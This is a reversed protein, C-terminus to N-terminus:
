LGPKSGFYKTKWFITLCLILYVTMQIGRQLFIRKGQKQKKVFVPTLQCKLITIAVMIVLMLHHSAGALMVFQCCHLVPSDKIIILFSEVRNQVNFELRNAMSQAQLCIAYIEHRKFTALLIKGNKQQYLLICTNVQQLRLYQM